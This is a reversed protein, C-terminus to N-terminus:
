RQHYYHELYWVYSFSAQSLLASEGTVQPEEQRTHPDLKLNSKQLIYLGWDRKNTNNLSESFIIRLINHTTPCRIGSFRDYLEM